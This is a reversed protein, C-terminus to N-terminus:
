VTGGCDAPRVTNVSKILLCASNNNSDNDTKQSNGTIIFKFSRQTERNNLRIYIYAMTKM